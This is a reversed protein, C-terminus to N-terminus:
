TTKRSQPPAIEREHLEDTLVRVKFLLNAADLRTRVDDLQAPTVTSPGHVVDLLSRELDDLVGAVRGDGARLAADRYLRNSDVLDSAWRQQASLDVRDGDANVLDLLIRESRELHDGMAAVRMREGAVAPDLAAAVPPTGARPWMRGAAFAAVVLVAAMAAVAVPMWGTMWGRVADTWSTRQEPFRGRLRQWVHAPYSDDREPVEGGSVLQLTQVISAYSAACEHCAHLHPGVDGHEAPEGYYHLILEEDTCHTM